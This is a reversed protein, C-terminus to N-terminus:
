SRQYKTSVCGKFLGACMAEHCHPPDEVSEEADSKSEQAEEDGSTESVVVCNDAKKTALKAAKGQAAETAQGEVMECVAKRGSNLWAM